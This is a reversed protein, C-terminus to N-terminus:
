QGSSNKFVLELHESNKGFIKIRFIELNKLLFKPTPNSMGFPSIKKMDKMNLFNVEDLSLVADIKEKKNKQVKEAKEFNKNLEEELKHIKEFSIEFGGAQEHGGFSVFNDASKKM